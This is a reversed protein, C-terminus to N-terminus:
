PLSFSDVFRTIIPDDHFGASSSAIVHYIGNSSIAVRIVQRNRGRDQEIVMRCGPIAGHKESDCSVIVFGRQEFSSRLAHLRQEVTLGMGEPPIENHSMLLTIDRKPVSCNVTHREVSVGLASDTATETTTLCPFEASARQDNTSARQWLHGPQSELVFQLLGFVAVLPALVPFARALKKPSAELRERRRLAYVTLCLGVTTTIVSDIHQILFARM